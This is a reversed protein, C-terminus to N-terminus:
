ELNLTGPCLAVVFLFGTAISLTKVLDARSLPDCTNGGFLVRPTCHV